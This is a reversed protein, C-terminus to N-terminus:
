VDDGLRPRRAVNRMAAPAKASPARGIKDPQSRLAVSDAALALAGAVASAVFGNAPRNFFLREKLLRKIDDCEHVHQFVKRIGESRDPM